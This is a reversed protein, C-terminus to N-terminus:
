PLSSATPLYNLLAAMNGTPTGGGSPVTLTNDMCSAASPSVYCFPAGSSTSAFSIQIAGEVIDAQLALGAAKVNAPLNPGPQVSITGSAMDVKTYGWHWNGSVFQELAKFFPSYYDVVM